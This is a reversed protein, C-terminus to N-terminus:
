KDSWFGTDHQEKAEAHEDGTIYSQVKKVKDTFSDLGALVKNLSAKEHTDLEGRARDLLKPYRLMEQYDELRESILQQWEDFEEQSDSYLDVVKLLTKISLKWRTSFGSMDLTVEFGDLESLLSEKFYTLTRIIEKYDEDHEKVFSEVDTYLIEETDEVFEGYLRMAPFRNLLAENPTFDFYADMNSYHDIDNYVFGVSLQSIDLTNGVGGYSLTQKEVSQSGDGVSLLFAELEDWSSKPINMVENIYLVESRSDRELRARSPKAINTVGGVLYNLTDLVGDKGFGSPSCVRFNARDFWQALVTMWWLKYHRPQTHEFDSLTDLLGKFPMHKRASFSLNKYSLIEWYAVGKHSIKRTKGPIIPLEDFLNIERGEKDLASFLYKRRDKNFVYGWFNYDKKEGGDTLNIKNIRVQSGELNNITLVDKYAQKRFEDACKNHLLKSM